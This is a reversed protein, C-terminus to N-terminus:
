EEKKLGEIRVVKVIAKNGEYLSWSQLTVAKDDADQFLFQGTNPFLEGTNLAEIEITNMGIKLPVNYKIFSSELQISPRVIEGNVWIRVVDGDLVAYDRCAINLTSTYVMFEGLFYDRRELQATIGEEKLQKNFKQTYLEKPNRIDEPEMISKEEEKKPLLSFGKLLKEDKKEFSSEYKIIAPTKDPSTPQPPAEPKKMPSIRLTRNPKEIQSFGAISFGCLLALFCIFRM